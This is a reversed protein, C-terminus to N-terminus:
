IKVVKYGGTKACDAILASHFNHALIAANVDHRRLSVWVDSYYENYASIVDDSTRKFEREDDILGSIFACLLLIVGCAVMFCAFVPDNFLVIGSGGVCFGANIVLYKDASWVYQFFWKLEEMDILGIM